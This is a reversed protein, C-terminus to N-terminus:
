NEGLLSHWEFRGPADETLKGLIIGDSMVIVQGDLTLLATSPNLYSAVEVMVTYPTDAGTCYLHGSAM